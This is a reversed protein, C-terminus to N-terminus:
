KGGPRLDLCVLTDKSRAFLLGDALAPYARVGLPLVQARATAKFGAPSAAARILEGRESLILLSDGALTITAAGISAEEWKLKGTHLELCRLTPGPELGPDTRGHIGFLYENHCVSTAYHNSLAEPASWLKDPQSNRLRLLEAGAGYCGSIFVLDGIVLPAAATVSNREEPGFPYEFLVKGGVPDIGSLNHRTLFLACRHVGIDAGVPSSYSAEESSAKWLLDGTLRDFAVIGADKGGGINLMVAKGEVLPSCAMGFFGKAAHFRTKTNVDWLPKGTTFDLCHLWGEAGFTYVKGDVICPTARPGEDFGFDDRYATAYAFRWIRNGKGADLCDVTERDQLRHFLILKNEAV